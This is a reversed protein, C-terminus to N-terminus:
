LTKFTTEQSSNGADEIFPGKAYPAVFALGVLGVLLAVFPAVPAEPGVVAFGALGGMLLLTVPLTSLVGPPTRRAALAAFAGVALLTAAVHTGHAALPVLAFSLGAAVLAM